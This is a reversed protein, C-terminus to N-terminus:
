NSIPIQYELYWDCVVNNILDMNKDNIVSHPISMHLEQPIFIVHNFDLHHGHFNEQPKNHPIFGFLKRRKANKRAKSLKTGGKWQPNKIGKLSNSIKQKTEKTHHKGFMHHKNGTMSNSIKQKSEKTHHKSGKQSCSRCLKTYKRYQILREEKCCDCICWVKKNSGHSLTNSTYRFLIFTKKEDIM